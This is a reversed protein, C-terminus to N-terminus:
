KHWKYNNIKKKNEWSLPVYKKNIESVYQGDFGNM